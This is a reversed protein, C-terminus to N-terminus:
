PLRRRPDNPLPDGCIRGTLTRPDADPIEALRAAVDRQEMRYVVLGGPMPKRTSKAEPPPAPPYPPAHLYKYVTTKGIRLAEGIEHYTAGQEKLAKARAVKDAPLM